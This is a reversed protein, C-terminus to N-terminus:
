GSMNSPHHIVLNPKAKVVREYCDSLLNAALDCKTHPVIISDHVSLSPIGHDRKLALMTSIVAESEEWMLRSWVGRMSAEVRTLWPYASLIRERVHPLPYIKSLSRRADRKFEISIARPWKAIARESGFTAAFWRKVINRAEIGLGDIVYPDNAPDIQENHWAFFITVYSARIDIESVPEGNIRMKLRENGDLQQYNDAGVSYLRGGMNWYFHPDDGNNFGRFYGRHVGGGIDQEALFENLERVQAELEVTKPSRTFKMRKGREKRGEANTRARASLQLPHRPLEPVFHTRVNEPDIGYTAALKVLTPTARWRSARRAGVVSKATDFDLWRQCPAAVLELLRLRVLADRLRKFNRFSVERGSFDKASSSRYVLGPAEANRQAQLLEGVFAEVARKFKAAGKLRRNKRAGKAREERIVEEYVHEVLLQAQETVARSNLPAYEAAALIKALEKGSIQKNLISGKHPCALANVGM